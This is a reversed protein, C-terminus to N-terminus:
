CNWKMFCGLNNDTLVAIDCHVPCM